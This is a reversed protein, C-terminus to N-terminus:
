FGTEEVFHEMVTWRFNNYPFNILCQVVWLRFGQNFDWSVASNAKEWRPISSDDQGTM